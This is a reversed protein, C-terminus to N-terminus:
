CAAGTSGAAVPPAESLVARGYEAALMNAPAGNRQLWYAKKEGIGAYLRRRDASKRIKLEPMSPLFWRRKEKM